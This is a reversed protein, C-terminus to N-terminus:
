YTSRSNDWWEALSSMVDEWDKKSFVTYGHKKELKDIVGVEDGNTEEMLSRAEQFMKDWKEDPIGSYREM